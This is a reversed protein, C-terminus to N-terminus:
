SHNRPTARVQDGSGVFAFNSKTDNKTTLLISYRQAATIYIVSAEAPETYVGDVEVIRMTHGEFWVYQGIFAGVNIMRIFYTKGPQVAVKLNQTDNFLNSDPIPEAGTPNEVNLFKKLLPAMQDHYWDSVTLVLEEDFQDKYPNEPDHVILPGRIGDPYQGSDHSHYWYTGPQEVQARDSRADQDNVHASASVTFNYTFSAGPRISCQSVGVAGDMHTTGNQFLGHFHLSTSQNGLQNLVNVVVRDGKTATIQPIPWKGNIGITPRNSQGDPNATVWTVNFDYTVTAAHSILGFSFLCILYSCLRISSHSM